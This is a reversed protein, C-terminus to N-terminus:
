IRGYISIRTRTRISQALARDTRVIVYSVSNARTPRADTGSVCVQEICSDPVTGQGLSAGIVTDCPVTTGQIYPNSHHKRNEGYM